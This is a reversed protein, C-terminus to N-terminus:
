DISKKPKYFVSLLAIIVIGLESYGPGTILINLAYADSKLFKMYVLAGNIFVALAMVIFNIIGLTKGAFFTLLKSDSIKESSLAFTKFALLLGLIIAMLFSITNGMGGLFGDILHSMFPQGMNSAWSAYYLPGSIGLVILLIPFIYKM